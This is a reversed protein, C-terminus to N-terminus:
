GATEQSVLVETYPFVGWFTTFVRKLLRQHIGRSTGMREFLEESFRLSFLRWNASYHDARKM